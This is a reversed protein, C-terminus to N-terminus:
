FSHSQLESTHEESREAPPVMKANKVGARSVAITQRDVCDRGTAIRSDADGRRFFAADMKAVFNFGIGIQLAIINQLRELTYITMAEREVGVRELEIEPMAAM